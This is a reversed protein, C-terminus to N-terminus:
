PCTTNGDCVNAGIQTANGFVTGSTNGNIVNGGYGVGVGLSVLGYTGNGELTNGTVTSDDGASIGSAANGSAVNDRVNSHEGVGIGGTNAGATHLRGLVTNGVVTASPGLVLNTSRNELYCREVRAGPGFIQVGVGNDILRVDLIRHGGDGSGLDRVGAASFGTIAGDRIEWVGDRVLEIGAVTGTGSGQIAFGGLDLTVHLGNANEQIAPVSTAVTLNGTLRYSGSAAVTVPFGAGDGAFCGTNVACAQSIELVGDAAAAGALALLLPPLLVPVRRM